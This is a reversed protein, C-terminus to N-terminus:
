LNSRERKYLLQVNYKLVEKSDYATFWAFVGSMNATLYLMVVALFLLIKKKTM